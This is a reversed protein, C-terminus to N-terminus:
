TGQSNNKRHKTVFLSCMKLLCLFSLQLSEIVPQYSGTAKFGEHVRERNELNVWKLRSLLLMSVNISTRCCQGWSDSRSYSGCVSKCIHASYGHVFWHSRVSTHIPHYYAVREESQLKVLLWKSSSPTFHRMSERGFSLILLKTLYSWMSINGKGEM